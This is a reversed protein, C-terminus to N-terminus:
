RSRGTRGGQSRRPTREGSYRLSHGGANGEGPSKAGNEKQDRRLLPDDAVAQVSDRHGPGSRRDGPAEPFRSPKAYVPCDLLFTKGLATGRRNKPCRDRAGSIRVPQLIRAKTSERTLSVLWGKRGCSDM